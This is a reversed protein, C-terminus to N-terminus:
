GQQPQTLSAAIRRQVTLDHLPAGGADDDVADAAGAPDLLRRVGTRLLRQDMAASGGLLLIGSGQDLAAVLAGLEEVSVPDGESRYQRAVATYAETLRQMRQAMQDALAEDRAAVAIFELTALAFGAMAATVEEHTLDGAIEPPPQEDVRDFPNWTDSFAVDMNADMVALFLGAKGDFNSYVAGKSFGARRAINELNAGHYGDTAFAERAAFVLAERTQRQRDRRSIPDPLDTM